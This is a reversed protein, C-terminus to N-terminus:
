YVYEQLQASQLLMEGGEVPRGVLDPVDCPLIPPPDTAGGPVRDASQAALRVTTQRGDHILDRGVEVGQDGSSDGQPSDGLNVRRDRGDHDRAVRVDPLAREHTRRRAATRLDRVVGERRFPNREAVKVAAWVAVLDEVRGPEEVPRHVFPVLDLSLGDRGEGM